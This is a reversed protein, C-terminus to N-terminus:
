LMSSHVPCLSLCISVSIHHVKEARRLTEVEQVVHQFEIKIQSLRYLM